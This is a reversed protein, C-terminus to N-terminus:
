SEDTDLARIVDLLAQGWESLSYGTGGFVNMGEILGRSVLALLSTGVVPRHEEPFAELINGRNWGHKVPRDSPPNGSYPTSWPPPDEALKQLVSIHAGNLDAISMLIIDCEDVRDLANVADGLVLGMARIVQDHGNMGIGYLLRSHLGILRPQEALVEALQERQLGTRREAELLATSHRRRHEEVAKGLFYKGLAGAGPIVADGGVAVLDRSLSGSGSFEGAPEIM